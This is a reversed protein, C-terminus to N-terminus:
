TFWSKQIALCLVSITFCGTNACRHNDHNSNSWNPVTHMRIDCWQVVYILVITWHLTIYQLIPGIYCRRYKLESACSAKTVQSFFSVLKQLLTFISYSTLCLYLSVVWKLSRQPDPLELHGISPSLPVYDLSMSDLCDISRLLYIRFCGTCTYRDRVTWKM